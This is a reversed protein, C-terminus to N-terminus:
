IPLGLVPHLVGPPIVCSGLLPSFDGGEVQQGCRKRLLGSYSALKKKELCYFCSFVIASEKHPSKPVKKKASERHRSKGKSQFLWKGSKNNYRLILLARLSSTHLHETCLFLLLVASYHKFSCLQLLKM